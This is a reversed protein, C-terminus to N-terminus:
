DTRGLGLRRKQQFVSPGVMVADSAYLAVVEEVDHRNFADQFARHIHEPSKTM